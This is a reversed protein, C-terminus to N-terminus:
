CSLSGKHKTNSSAPMGNKDVCWCRGRQKGRSSWCQKKRFFGLKDCNPMYIDHNSKFLHADLGQILTTLLKRCPAEEPDETPAPDATNTQETPGAGGADSCVGRGELLARLPRPEEEPPACRLGHACSRTYVGCTEGVALATANLDVQPRGQSPKANCAPCGRSRTTLPM